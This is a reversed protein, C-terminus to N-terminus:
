KMYYEFAQKFLDEYEERGSLISNTLFPRAQMKRTGFEVYPAYYVNTGIYLVRKGDQSNEAFGEYKGQKEGNDSAFEETNAAEGDLAWTISNRLFGTDVAEMDSITEKAKREALGGVLRLAKEVAQAYLKDHERMNSHFEAM